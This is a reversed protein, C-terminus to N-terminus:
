LEGTPADQIIKGDKLVVCRKARKALEKSHTVIVLTKGEANLQDFLELIMEGTESDLNGTPEDAILLDPDNMLSRAIAVRQQQGGSLENPKHNERKSLNVKELLMRARATHAAKDRGDLVAPMLVNELVTLNALLYFSQFIFGIQQRRFQTAQLSNFKETNIQNFVYEGKTPQDLIGLINLFTSKGSGSEGMIAVYEGRCITLSVHDLAKVKHLRKTYFRCLDNIKIMEDMYNCTYVM